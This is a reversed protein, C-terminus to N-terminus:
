SENALSAIMNRTQSIGYKIQPINNTKVGITLANVFTQLAKMDLADNKNSRALMGIRQNLRNIQQLALIRNEEKSLGSGIESSIIPAIYKEVQAFLEKLNSDM